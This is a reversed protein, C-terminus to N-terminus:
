WPKRKHLFNGVYLLNNFTGEYRCFIVARGKSEDQMNTDGSFRGTDGGLNFVLMLKGGYRLGEWSVYIGNYRLKDKIGLETKGM